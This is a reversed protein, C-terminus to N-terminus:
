ALAVIVNLPDREGTTIRVLYQHGVPGGLETFAYTPSTAEAVLNGVVMREPVRADWEGFHFSVISSGHAEAKIARAAYPATIKAVVQTAYGQGVQENDALVQYEVGPQPAANIHVDGTFNNGGSPNIINRDGTVRQNDQEAMASGRANRKYILLAVGSLVLAVGFWFAILDEPASLGLASQAFAAVLAVGAGIVVGATAIRV